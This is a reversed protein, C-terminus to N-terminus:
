GTAFGLIPELQTAFSLMAEDGFWRGTLQLGLPLGASNKGSPLTLTPLGAHTWPLNMVPDGTSDLGAPAVGPASPSLWLDLSHKNMLQMLAERLAVRGAVAKKLQRDRITLGRQILEATKWHYKEEHIAFWDAHFRAAEAAVILNHRAAIAEFDPMAAVSKVIFGADHLWRCIQRFHRRGEDSARQLYPGEPIGLVPKKETVVLQWHQCLLSAALEMGDVDTTFCGVHDLSASLPLVGSKDIRSYTPKYGVTGCFAAPRNISGITQTGFTLPTLGAGVAAASGSSSGGPTHAPNHPNRTAGPAFYAFETTVTKGLVLVGAQRLATVSPAEKGQLIDAPLQSGAQTIFGDVQFIDKVGLPIGFLSPREAPNPYQDLLQQAQQFIRPFRGNEPVFALVEPEREDFRQQLAALYDLLPWGGSRLESAIVALSADLNIQKGMKLGM